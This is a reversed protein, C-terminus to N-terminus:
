ESLLQSLSRKLEQIEKICMSVLEEYRVGYDTKKGSENSKYVIPAFDLTTLGESLVAAEVDQAILGFHTRGSTGNNYKFTVPTLKDFIRSYVESQKEISHKKTRDSTVPTSSGYQDIYWTDCLHHNYGEDASCGFMIPFTYGDVAYPDDNDEAYDKIDPNYYAVGESRFVTIIGRNPEEIDIGDAYSGLSIDYGDQTRLWFHGDGTWGGVTEAVAHTRRVYPTIDSASNIVLYGEKESFESTDITIAIGPSANYYYSKIAKSTNDSVEVSDSEDPQRALIFLECGSEPLGSVFVEIADGLAYVKTYWTEDGGYNCVTVANEDYYYYLDARFSNLLYTDYTTTGRPACVMIGNPDIFLGGLSNGTLDLGKANIQDAYITSTRIAKNTILTIEDESWLDNLYAVNDPLQEVKLIGQVNTADVKINFETGELDIRDASIKAGSEGNIASIIFEGKVVKNGDQYEAFMNILARDKDATETISAASGVLDGNEDTGVWKTLLSITARDKDATQTITAIKTDTSNQWSAISQIRSEFDSSVQTISTSLREESSKIWQTVSTIAAYTDEVETMISSYNDEIDGKTAYNKLTLKGNTTVQFVIRDSDSEEKEQNKITIGNEDILITSEKHNKNNTIMLGNGLILDGIIVEGVVGYKTITGNESTPDPLTIKGLATKVTKWNDDTFLMVNNILRVQEDEFLDGDESVRKRGLIGYTGISFEQNIMNAYAARLTLDLPDRIISRVTEREKAYSMLNQWNSSVQRSTTAADKILDAYSYGWDDLRLANAFVMEFDEAKDLNMNLELLAPYYWLGEEKEITIIRGLVLEEMQDRFEYNKTADISELSFSFRPQSVRSLEDKGAELLAKCLGIEENPTTADLVSINEDTYDGEIWYCNLERLLSPTNSFYSLINLRSSIAKLSAEINDRINENYNIQDNLESVRSEYVDIWSQVGDVYKVIKAMKTETITEGDENTTETTTIKEETVPYVMAIFRDFGDCYYEATKTEADVVARSKLKCYSDGGDDIFYWYGADEDEANRSAIDDATGRMSSGKPTWRRTEVDFDPKDNYATLYSRGDFRESEFTSDIALSYEGLKVHEARVIGCLGGEEDGEGLVSRKDRANKLETLYTSVYQLDDGYNVVSQAAARYNEVLGIYEAESATCALKWAKLKAILEPSMWKGEVEDMYYSFDCIYNTGTPNVMTIDCNGGNCNLVTVIDDANENVKVNKMFNSFTYIVGAKDETVEQITKVQIAKYMFDFLVVVKFADEVDNVMFDYGYTVKETFSRHMDKVADSVYTVTWDVFASQPETPTSQLAQRIGLQRYWQGLVSPIAGEDLSNYKSDFPDEANYFRYVREESVFGKDKFVSQYSEATIAKSKLLGNDDEDVEQIRFWGIGTVYLLRKTRIYDYAELDKVEGNFLSVADDVTMKLESLDNFRLAIKRDRGPLPFLEREDPNCLYIEPAELNHYYDFSLKM